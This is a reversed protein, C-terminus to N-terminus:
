IGLPAGHHAKPVVSKRLLAERETLPLSQSHRTSKQQRGSLGLGFLGIGLMLATTPEPVQRLNARFVLWGADGATTHNFPNTTNQNDYWMWHDSLHFQGALGGSQPSGPTYQTNTFDLALSGNVAHGSGNVGTEDVWSRSGNVAGTGANADSIAGNINALNFSAAATSATDGTAFVEWVSVSSLLTGGISFNGLAGQATSNDAWAIISAYNHLGSNVTYNEPGSSCLIQCASTNNVAGYLDGATIGNVDGFGAV